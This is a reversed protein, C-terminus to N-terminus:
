PESSGGMRQYKDRQGRLNRRRSTGVGGFLLSFKGHAESGKGRSESRGQM